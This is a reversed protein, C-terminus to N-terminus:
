GGRSKKEELKSKLLKTSLSAYSPSKTIGELQLRVLPLSNFTMHYASAVGIVCLVVPTTSKLLYLFVGLIFVPVYSAIGDSRRNISMVVVSAPYLLITTLRFLNSQAFDDVVSIAVLSLPCITSLIGVSLQILSERYKLKMMSNILQNEEQSLDLVM